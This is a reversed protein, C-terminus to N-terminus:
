RLLMRLLLLLAIILFLAVPWGLRSGGREKYRQARPTYQGFTGRFKDPNYPEDPVAEGQRRKAENILIQLRDREESSYINSRRYKRPKKMSFLKMHQNAIQLNLTQSM